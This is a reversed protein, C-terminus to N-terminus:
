GTDAHTVLGASSYCLNLRNERYDATLAAEPGYARVLWGAQNARHAAERVDLGVFEELLLREPAYAPGGCPESIWSDGARGLVDVPVATGDALLIPHARFHAVVSAVESPAVHLEIRDGEAGLAYVRFPLSRAALAEAADAVNQPATSM